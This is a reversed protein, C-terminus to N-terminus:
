SKSVWQQWIPIAIFCGTGSWTLGDNTIKSMQASQREAMLTLTGPHWFNCIVALGTKCLISYRYPLLPRWLTLCLFWWVIFCLYIRCLQMRLIADYVAYQDVHQDCLARHILLITDFVLYHIIVTMIIIIIIRHVSNNHSIPLLDTLISQQSYCFLQNILQYPV